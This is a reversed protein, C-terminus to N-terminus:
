TAVRYDVAGRRYRYDHGILLLQAGDGLVLASLDTTVGTDPDDVRLSNLRPTEKFVKDVMASLRPSTGTILGYVIGLTAANAAVVPTDRDLLLAPGIHSHLPGCECLQISVPRVDLGLLDSVIEDM